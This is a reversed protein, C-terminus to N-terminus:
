AVVWTTQDPIQMGLPRLEGLRGLDHSHELSTVIQCTETVIRFTWPPEVGCPMEYNPTNCHIWPSTRLIRREIQMM